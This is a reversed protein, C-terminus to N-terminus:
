VTTIAHEDVPMNEKDLKLDYTAKIEKALKTQGAGLALFFAKRAYILVANPNEEDLGIKAIKLYFSISDRIEDGGLQLDAKVSRSINSTSGWDLQRQQKASLPSDPLNTSVHKEFEVLFNILGTNAIHSNGTNQIKEKSLTKCEMLDCQLHHLYMNKFINPSEQLIGFNNGM